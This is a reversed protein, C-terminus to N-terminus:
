ILLLNYFLFLCIFFYCGRFRIRDICREAVDLYMEDSINQNQLLDIYSSIADQLLENSRKKEALQDLAKARGHKVYVNNPLTEM